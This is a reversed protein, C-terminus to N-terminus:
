SYRTEWEKVSERILDRVEADPVAEIGEYHDLGIWVIVGHHPMEALRIGRSALSSNALKEQLIEDVQAVISLPGTDKVAPAGSPPTLAGTGRPRLPGTDPPRLQGTAPKLPGTAPRPTAVAPSPPLPEGATKLAGTVPKPAAASPEAAPSPAPASPQGYGLWAKLELVAKELRERQEYKLESHVRLMKGDVEVQLANGEPARWLAAVLRGPRSARPIAAPPPGSTAASEVRGGELDKEDPEKERTLSSVLAGALYGLTVCVFAVILLTRVDM